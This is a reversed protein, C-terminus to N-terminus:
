TVVGMGRTELRTRQKLALSGGNEHVMLQQSARLWSIADEDADM